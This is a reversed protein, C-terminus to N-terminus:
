ASAVDGSPGTKRKLSKPIDGADGDQFDGSVTMGILAAGWKVFAMKDSAKLTRFGTQVEEVTAFESPKDREVQKVKEAEAKSVVVLGLVAAKGEILTKAHKDSLIALGQEAGEYASLSHSKAPAADRSAAEQNKRLKKMRRAAGSRLDQLAKAPDQSAGIAVLRSVESYSQIVNANVWQKFNLNVKACKVRARELTLAATLRKDDAKGDFEGATKLMTNITKALPKLEVITASHKAKEQAASKVKKRKKIQARTEMFGKKKTKKKPM